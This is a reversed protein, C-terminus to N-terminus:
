SGLARAIQDLATHAAALAQRAIAVDVKREFLPAYLAAIKGHVQPGIIGDETLKHARQFALVASRTTPGFIGDAIGCSFGLGALLEQVMQVGADYQAAMLVPYPDIYSASGKPRYAVHLHPGSSRGTSGVYAVVTGAAVRRGNVGAAFSTAHGLGWYAGDPAHVGTWNGGGSSDWGQSVAGAVPAFIPQGTCGSYALDLGRHYGTGRQGYWGTIRWGRLVDKAPQLPGSPLPFVIM